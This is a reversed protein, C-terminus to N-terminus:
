ACLEGGIMTRLPKGVIRELQSRVTSQLNRPVARSSFAMDCLQAMYEFAVADSRRGDTHAAQKWLCAVVGTVGNLDGASITQCRTEDLTSQDIAVGDLQLRLMPIPLTGLPLNLYGHVGVLDEPQKLTHEILTRQDDAYSVMTSYVVDHFDHVWRPESMERARRYFDIGRTAWDLSQKLSARWPHLRLIRDWYDWTAAVDLATNEQAADTSLHAMLQTLRIAPCAQEEEEIYSGLLTWTGIAMIQFSAALVRTFNDNRGKPSPARPLSMGLVVRWLSAYSQDSEMLFRFFIRAQQEGQGQYIAFLQVTLALVEHINAPNILKRFKPSGSGEVVQKIRM